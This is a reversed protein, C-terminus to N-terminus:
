ALALEEGDLTVGSAAWDDSSIKLVESMLDMKDDADGNDFIWMSLDSRKNDGGAELMDKAYNVM